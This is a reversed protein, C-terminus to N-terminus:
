GSLNLSNIANIIIDYKAALEDHTEQLSEYDNKLSDYSVTKANYKDTWVTLNTECNGLVGEANQRASAATILDNQCSTLDEVTENLMYQTTNLDSALTEAYTVYGTMNGGIVVVVALIVLVGGVLLKNGGAFSTIKSYNFKKSKSANFEYSESKTASALTTEKAKIPTFSAIDVTKKSKPSLKTLNKAKNLLSKIKNSANGSKKTGGYSYEM